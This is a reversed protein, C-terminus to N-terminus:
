KKAKKKGLQRGTRWGFPDALLFVIGAMSVILVPLYPSYAQEQVKPQEKGPKAIEEGAIAFVNKFLGLNFGVGSEAGGGRDERVLVQGKYQTGPVADLPIKVTVYVPIYKGAPISARKPEVTAYKEIEDVLQIDVTIPEKNANIVGYSLTMKGGRPVEGFNLLGASQGLGASVGAFLLILALGASTFFALANASKM